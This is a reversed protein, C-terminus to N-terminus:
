KGHLEVKSRVVVMDPGAVARLSGDELRSVWPVIAGYDFRLIIECKMPVRGRLGTVTRVIDAGEGLPMFDTVLVAGDNTEFETELIMTDGRYRRQVRADG